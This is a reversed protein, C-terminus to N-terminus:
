IPFALAKIQLGDAKGLLRNLYICVTHAALKTHLRAALGWFSHAHHQKIPFQATLQGTVTEVIQRAQNLRRRLPPPLPDRQNVRRQAVLTIGRESRLLDALPASVSGQDASATLDEHEWLLEGGALAEGTNAPVLLFDLIVGGLTLLLHLKYGYIWEKGAAAAGFAAGHAAWDRWATPALHFRIVPVPLSDLVCPREQAVDLLRLVVQRLLNIAGLLNRRRRNFRPRDPLRPFLHRYDQWAAVADTETAWGRCESVIALTILESDRCVPDPGPRQRLPALDIWLDDIVVYMWTCFDEFSTIM